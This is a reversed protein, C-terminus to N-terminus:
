EGTRQRRWQTPTCDTIKKFCAHFEHDSSFGLQAAIHKVPTDPVALLKIAENIRRRIIFDKPAVGTARAFLKRFQRSSLHAERALDDVSLRGGDDGAIKELCIAIRPDPSALASLHGSQRLLEMLLVRISASAYALGDESNGNISEVVRRLQRICDPWEPVQLFRRPFRALLDRGFNDHLHFHLCILNFQAVPLGPFCAEHVIDAPLIALEGPAVVRQEDAVRVLLPHDVPIYLMGNPIRRPQLHWDAHMRWWWGHLLRIRASVIEVMAGPACLPACLAPFEPQIPGMGALEDALPTGTVM